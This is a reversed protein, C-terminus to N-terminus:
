FVDQSYFVNALRKYLRYNHRFKSLADARIIYEIGLISNRSATYFKALGNSDYHLTLRYDGVLIGKADVTYTSAHLIKNNKNSVLLYFEIPEANLGNKLNELIGNFEDESFYADSVSSGTEPFYTGRPPIDTLTHGKIGTRPPYSEVTPLGKFKGTVVNRIYTNTADFYGIDLTKGNISFTTVATSDKQIYGYQRVLGTYINKYYTVQLERVTQDDKWLLTTFLTSDGKKEIVTGEWDAKNRLAFASPNENHIVQRNYWKSLQEVEKSVPSPQEIKKERLCAYIMGVLMVLLLSKFAIKM